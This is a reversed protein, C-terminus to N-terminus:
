AARKLKVPNDLLWVRGRKDSKDGPYYKVSRVICRMAKAEVYKRLANSVCNVDDTPVRICQGPKLQEFIADYKHGGVTRGAPLKDNSIEFKTPDTHNVNM